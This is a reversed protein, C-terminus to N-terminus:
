GSISEIVELEYKKAFAFDRIDHAPVAM